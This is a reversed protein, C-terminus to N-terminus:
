LRLFEQIIQLAKATDAEGNINEQFIQYQTPSFGGGNNIRNIVDIHHQLTFEPHFQMALTHAGQQFMAYQCDPSSALIAVDKPPHVVHDHHNFRYNYLRNSSSYFKVPKIGVHWGCNEVKGGRAKAILQHGFCIGILKPLQNNNIFDELNTIWDLPEYVSYRSGTILYLNYQTPDPFQNHIVNFFDLKYDSDQFFQSYLYEIKDGKPTNNESIDAKLIAVKKNHKTNPTNISNINSKM